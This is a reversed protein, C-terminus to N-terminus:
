NTAYDERREVLFGSIGSSHDVVRHTQRGSPPLLRNAIPIWLPVGVGGVVCPGPRNFQISISCILQRDAHSTWVACTTNHMVASRTSKNATRKCRTPRYGVISCHHTLLQLRTLHVTICVGSRSCNFSKGKFQFVTIFYNLSFTCLTICHVTYNMHSCTEVVFRDAGHHGDM